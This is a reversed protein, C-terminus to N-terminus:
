FNDIHLNKSLLIKSSCGIVSVTYRFPLLVRSVSARVLRPIERGFFFRSEFHRLYLADDATM